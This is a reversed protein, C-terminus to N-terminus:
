DLLLDYRAQRAGEHRLLWQKRDVGGGYGTLSGDAGIVRHCPVILSVPNSGVALGVARAGERSGLDRALQGYTTTSGAAIDTLAKWVALEFATGMLALPVAAHAGSANEFYSALWARCLDFYPSHGDVVEGGHWKALRRYLRTAREPRDFELGCLGESSAIALMPGLPSNLM